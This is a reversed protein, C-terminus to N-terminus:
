RKRRIIDVLYKMSDLKLLYAAVAYFLAGVSIQVLLLLMKNMLIRSLMIVIGGMICSLAIAPFIDQLQESHKYAILKKTYFMFLALSVCETVVNSWAILIPSEFVFVAVSLLVLALSNLIIEIKLTIDSRGIAMISQQCTTTLPRVLFVITLVRMFPVCPLWKVTLFVEVFTDAVAILGILAPALVFVGVRVARRCLQKMRPLDDQCGSLAPFMVKSISSNINTVILEPYKKGQDYFALDASGFKKGIILSRINGEITYVITTLWVKWGYSFLGKARALSFRLGIGRKNTLHLVIMNITSNTLYQAVLAWVGFGMHAMVIGVVASVATGLLTSFFFKKFAMDKQVHAHQVSNVGSIIVRIGLVRLVPVLQPMNYFDAIWPACAFLLVYLLSSGALSIVLVTSFDLDDPNKKQVLANGFGGTTLANCLTIFIMVISIVGYNEPELLRALIVSVLLSILQATIREGYSWFLGSTVKSKISKEAM